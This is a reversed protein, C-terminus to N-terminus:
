QALKRCGRSRGARRVALDGEPHLEDHVPQILIEHQRFRHHPRAIDIAVGHRPHHPFLKISKTVKAKITIILLNSVKFLNRFDQDDFLGNPQFTNDCFNPDLMSHIFILDFFYKVVFRSVKKYFFAVPIPLIYIGGQALCLIPTIQNYDENVFLPFRKDNERAVHNLSLSIAIFFFLVVIELADSM